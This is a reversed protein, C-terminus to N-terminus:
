LEHSRSCQGLLLRSPTSGVPPLDRRARDAYLRYKRGTRLVFSDSPPIAPPDTTPAPLATYVGFTTRGVSGRRTRLLKVVASTGNNSAATVYVDVIIKTPVTTDTVCSASAQPAPGFISIASAVLGFACVSALHRHKM